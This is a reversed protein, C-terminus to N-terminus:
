VKNRYRITQHEIIYPTQSASNYTTFINLPNYFGTSEIIPMQILFLMYIYYIFVAM